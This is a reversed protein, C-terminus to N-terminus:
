KFPNLYSLFDGAPCAFSADLTRGEAKARECETLNTRPIGIADGIAFSAGSVAGTGFSVVAQGMTDGLSAAAGVVTNKKLLLLVVLLAAAGGALMMKQEQSM